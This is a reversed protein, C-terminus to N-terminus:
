RRAFERRFVAPSQGLKERFHHRLNYASGFGTAEAVEDVSRDSAVLLDKAAELREAIIWEGPGKGTAEVFRREFTRRSMRALDAMKSITWRQAVDQRIRDLLPALGTDPRVQVTREVFQSQGGSRHPPMVIRKAVSNAADPGFDSRVLEIMLDIGAASGASTFINNAGHYLSAEDVEIAPFRDRLAQAYRWHTTVRTGDLLGTAALVFAGSCISVLRTGRKHATQLLAVLEDPVPHDMGRWGPIIITDARRFLGPSGDPLITFGGQARLPGPEIAASAFRYWNRGMEPRALGFVESVIGFEFTCLGDYLLAVVLPGNTKPM